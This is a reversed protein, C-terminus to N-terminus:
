IFDFNIENTKLNVECNGHIRKFGKKFRMLYILLLTLTIRIQFKGAYYIKRLHIASKRFGRARWLDNEM